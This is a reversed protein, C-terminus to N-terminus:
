NSHEAAAAPQSQSQSQARTLSIRRPKAHEAKPFELRLLGHEYHAQAKDVAVEPPLTVTREFRGAARERLIYRRNQPAEPEPPQEGCITLQNGECAVEIADPQFGALSMEIVYTDGETYIDMPGPSAQSGWGFGPVVSREVLRNMMDRLPTPEQYPEWRALVM